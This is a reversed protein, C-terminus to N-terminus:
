TRAITPVHKYPGIEKLIKIKWPQPHLIGMSFRVWLRDGDPLQDPSSSLLALVYITKYKKSRDEPSLERVAVDTEKGEILDSLKDVFIDYEKM